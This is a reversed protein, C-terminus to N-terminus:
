VSLTVSPLLYITGSWQLQLPINTFDSSAYSWYLVITNGSHLTKLPKNYQIDITLYSLGCYPNSPESHSLVSCNQSTFM